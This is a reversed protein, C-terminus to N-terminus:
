CGPLLGKIETHVQALTFTPFKPFLNDRYRFLAYRNLILNAATLALLM